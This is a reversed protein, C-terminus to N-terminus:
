PHAKDPLEERKTADIIQYVKHAVPATSRVIEGNRVIYKGGYPTHGSNIIGTAKSSALAAKEHQRDRSEDDAWAGKCVPCYGDTVPPAFLKEAEQKMAGEAREREIRKMEREIYWRAKRLDELVDGKEGARWLYKLANGRNFNMHEAITICEVGSPHSTYHKPHNVNDTM